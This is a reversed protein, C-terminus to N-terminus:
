DPRSEALHRHIGYGDNRTGESKVIRFFRKVIEKRYEDPATM